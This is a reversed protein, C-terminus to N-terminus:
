AQQLVKTGATTAQFRSTAVVKQYLAHYRSAINGIDFKREVNSRARLRLANDKRGEKLCWIMGQALDDPRFPTALYGDSGHEISDRPGANNFAVVPTGCAMAEIVTKPFADQLSPVVALDASSYLLSLRRDDDIYGLYRTEISLDPLYGSTNDGFVVLLANETPVMERFKELAIVLERFGKRPDQTAQMAGYVIIPRDSPLGCIERALLKDTLQFRRLDLGNPIIEIPLSRLLPSARACDAIWSSVPVLSLDIGRWHKRKRNWIARSLDLERDSHLQPCRGCGVQYRDCGATYHCGGTFAWMDRLTWIVPQRFQSLANVSLFGAGIWHLHIIDPAFKRVLGGVRSPAWGITWFSPMPERRPYLYLPLRDFKMRAAAALPGLHGPLSLVAENGTRKKGAVMISDHGQAILAEHLWLAGRAAGHEGDFSSLHLVRLGERNGSPFSLKEASPDRM